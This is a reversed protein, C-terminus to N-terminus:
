GCHDSDEELPTVIQGRERLGQLFPWLEPVPSAVRHARGNYHVETSYSIADLQPVHPDVLVSRIDFFRTKEVLALAEEFVGPPLEYHTTESSMYHGTCKGTCRGGRELVWENVCWYGPARGGGHGMILILRDPTKSLVVQPQPTELGKTPVPTSACGALVLCAAFGPSWGFRM